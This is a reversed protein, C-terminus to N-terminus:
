VINLVRVRKQNTQVIGVQLRVDRHLLLTPRRVPWRLAIGLRVSLYKQVKM